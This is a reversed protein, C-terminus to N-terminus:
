WYSTISKYGTGFTSEYEGGRFGKILLYMNLTLLSTM